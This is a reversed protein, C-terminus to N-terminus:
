RRSGLDYRAGVPYLAMKVRSIKVELTPETVEVFVSPCAIKIGFKRMFMSDRVRDVMMPAEPVFPEKLRYVAKIQTAGNDVQGEAIVTMRESIRFPSKIEQLEVWVPYDGFGMITVEWGQVVASGGAWQIVKGNSGMFTVYVDPLGPMTNNWDITFSTDTYSVLRLGFEVGGAATSPVVNPRIRFAKFLTTPYVLYSDMSMNHQLPYRDASPTLDTTTMSTSYELVPDLTVSPPPTSDERKITLTLQIQEVRLYYDGFLTPVIDFINWVGEIMKEDQIFKGYVDFKNNAPNTSSLESTANPEGLLLSFSRIEPTPASRQDYASNGPILVVKRAPESDVQQLYSVGKGFM